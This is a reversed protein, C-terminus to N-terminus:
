ALVPSYLTKLSIWVISLNSYGCPVKYCGVQSMNHALCTAPLMPVSLLGVSVCLQVVM